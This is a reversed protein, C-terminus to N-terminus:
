KGMRDIDIGPFSLLRFGIRPWYNNGIREKLSQGLKIWWKGERPDRLPLLWHCRILHYIYNISIRRCSWAFDLWKPFFFEWTSSSINFFPRRRTGRLSNVAIEFSEIPATPFHYSKARISNVSDQQKTRRFKCKTNCGWATHLVPIM